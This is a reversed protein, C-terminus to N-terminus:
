TAGSECRQKLGAAETDVYRRSRSGYLAGFLGALAGSQRIRLTVRSGSDTPTLEHDAETAMGAARSVWTFLRGDDLVTVKWRAKPLKPQKIEAESGVVLPPGGVLRLTDISATWTPWSEVDCLVSWVTSPAADIDITTEYHM